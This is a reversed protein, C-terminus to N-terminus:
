IQRDSPKLAVFLFCKRNVFGPYLSLPVSTKGDAGSPELFLVRGKVQRKFNVRLYKNQTNKMQLRHKENEHKVNDAKNLNM